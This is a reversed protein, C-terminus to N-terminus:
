EPVMTGQALATPSNQRSNKKLNEKGTMDYYYLNTLSSIVQM